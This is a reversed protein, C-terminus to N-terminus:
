LSLLFYFYFDRKQRNQRREDAPSWGDGVRELRRSVQGWAECGCALGRHCRKRSTRGCPKSRTQSFLPHTFFLHNCDSELSSFM